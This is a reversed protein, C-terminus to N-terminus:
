LKYRRKDDTSRRQKGKGAYSLNPDVTMGRDAFATVISKVLMRPNQRLLERIPTSKEGRRM